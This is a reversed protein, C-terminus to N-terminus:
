CLSGGFIEFSFACETAGYIPVVNVGKEVLSDGVREALPGGAYAVMNLTKLYAVHAELANWELMFAPVAVIGQARANRANVIANDATAAPPIRYETATSAPPYICATGCTFLAFALGVSMGLAHFPPLAGVALRPSVEACEVLTDALYSGSSCCLLYLAIYPSM